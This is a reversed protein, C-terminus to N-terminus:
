FDNTPQAYEGMQAMVERGKTTLAKNDSIYALQMGLSSDWKDSIEAIQNLFHAQETCGMACFLEALEVPTVDINADIKRNLIAM